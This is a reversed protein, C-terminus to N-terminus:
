QKGCCKKYKKGSGCPCPDNPYIKKDKVVPKQEWIGNEYYDFDYEESAIQGLLKEYHDAKQEDGALHYLEAARTYLNLHDSDATEEKPLNQEVIKLAGEVDGRDQHCLAYGSICSGNDPEEKLWAQYWADSEDNKGMGALAQGIDDKYSDADGSEWQFLELVERCYDIAEQYRHASCLIMGMEPLLYDLDLEYETMVSIDTIDPKVVGSPTDRYLNHIVYEKMVPWGALFLSAAKENDDESVAVWIGNCCENIEDEVPLTMNPISTNCTLTRNRKKLASEYKKEDYERREKVIHYMEKTLVSAILTRAQKRNYGKKQVSLFIDTVFAPDHDRLQNEVTEMVSGSVISKSINGDEGSEFYRNRM